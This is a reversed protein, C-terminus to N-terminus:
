VVCEATIRSVSRADFAFHEVEKVLLSVTEGNLRVTLKDGVQYNNPLITIVFRRKPQSKYLESLGRERLSQENGYIVSTTVDPASKDGAGQLCIVQM